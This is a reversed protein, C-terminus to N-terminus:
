TVPLLYGIAYILFEFFLLLSLLGGLMTFFCTAYLLGRRRWSDSFYQLRSHGFEEVWQTEAFEQVRSPCFLAYLTSGIAMLISAILISSIRHPVEIPYKLFDIAQSRNIAAVCNIYAISFGLTTYSASFLPLKGVWRLSGWDLWYSSQITDTFDHLPQHPSEFAIRLLNTPGMKVDKFKASSLDSGEFSAFRLDSGFFNANSLLALSFAAYQCNAKLFKADSLEASLFSTGKCNALSLDAKNLNCLLFKAGELNGEFLDCSVLSVNRFKAASLHAGRLMARSMSSKAFSAHCLNANAFNVETLDFGDFVFEELDANSLDITAGPHLGRWKNWETAGLKLRDLDEPNM